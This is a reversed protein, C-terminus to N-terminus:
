IFFKYKAAAAATASITAAGTALAAVTSLKVKEGSPLEATAEKLLLPAPVVKLKAPDFGLAAADGKVISSVKPDAVGKPAASSPWAAVFALGAALAFAAARAGLIRNSM